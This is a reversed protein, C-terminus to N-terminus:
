GEGCKGVRGAAGAKGAASVGDAVRWPYMELGAWRGVGECRKVREFVAKHGVAWTVDRVEGTSEGTEEADGVSAGKEAAAWVSVLAALGCGGAELAAVYVGPVAKGSLARGLESGSGGTGEEGSMCACAACVCVGCIHKKEAHVHRPKRKSGRLKSV